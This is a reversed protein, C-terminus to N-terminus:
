LEWTYKEYAWPRVRVKLTIEKETTFAKVEYVVGRIIGNHKHATNGTQSSPIVVEGGFPMEAKESYVDESFNFKIKTKTPDDTIIERAKEPVEVKEFLREPVYATGRFCWTSAKAPDALEVMNAAFAAEDTPGDTNSYNTVDWKYYTGSKGVLGEKGLDDESIEEKHTMLSSTKAYNLFKVRSDENDAMKLFPLKGNVISYRVKAVAFTLDAYIKTTKKSTIKVEGKDFCTGWTNATSPTKRIALYNCTMPLNEPDFSPATNIELKQLDDETLDEWKTKTTKDSWDDEPTVNAVVYIHYTGAALPMPVQQYDPTLSTITSVSKVSPTTPTVENDSADKVKYAIVTLNNVKGEGTELDGRTLSSAARTPVNIMIGEFDEEIPSPIDDNSDSCAGLLLPAAM